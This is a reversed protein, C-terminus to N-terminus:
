RPRTSGLGRVAAGRGAVEQRTTMLPETWGRARRPRQWQQPSIADWGTTAWADVCGWAWLQRPWAGARSAVQSGPDDSLSGNKEGWWVTAQHPLSGGHGPELVKGGGGDPWWPRPTLCTASSTLLELDRRLGPWRSHLAWCLCCEAEWQAGQQFATRTRKM